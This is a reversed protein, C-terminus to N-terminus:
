VDVHKVKVDGEDDIQEMEQDTDNDNYLKSQDQQVGEHVATARGNTAGPPTKGGLVGNFKLSNSEMDDSSNQFHLPKPKSGTEASAPAM